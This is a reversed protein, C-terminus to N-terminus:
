PFSRAFECRIGRQVHQHDTIVGGMWAGFLVDERIEALAPRCSNRIGGRPPATQELPRLTPISGDHGCPIAIAETQGIGVDVQYERARLVTLLELFVDM